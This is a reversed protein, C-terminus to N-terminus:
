SQEEIKRQENLDHLRSAPTWDNCHRCYDKGEQYHVGEWFICDTQRGTRHCTYGDDDPNATHYTFENM